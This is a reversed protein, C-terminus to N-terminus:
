LFSRVMEITDAESAPKDDRYQKVRAFRLAVGGPYRTSRQVGDFAIEVVQEPRVFVTRETRRTALEQFRETQWALLEDTLGKFTKGLMVFEGTEPDRAGLHLNSLWGTRRGHGWEAALVVLDLTHVPKVKIWSKGRRGAQYPSDLAKVVVGEHGLAIVEDFFEDAAAPDDTVVRRVRVPEPVLRELEAWRATLPEDLLDRGDVHIVDFFFPRLSYASEGVETGFASATDQFAVPAGADNLSIAEGDLVVADVPLSRAIDVVDPLRNTIDRLNRTFIAVHDGVRHVQIRAGDLKWEVSGEGVSLIAEGASAATSALMPQIGRGVHLGIAELAEVGGDLAAAAANGLDGTLMSARRVLKAPVDFAKAVADQVVGAQAGQRLEGSMLGILMQQSRASARGLLGAVIAARREVSGSGSTTALAEFAEDVELVSLTSVSVPDPPEARVLTAYGVQLAQQRTDGALYTVGVAVEDPGLDSIVTALASTKETRKSTARVLESTEALRDFLM